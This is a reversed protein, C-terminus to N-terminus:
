QQSYCFYKIYNYTSSTSAVPACLMSGSKVVRDSVFMHAFVIVMIIFKCSVDTITLDNYGSFALAQYAM